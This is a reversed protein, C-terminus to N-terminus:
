LRKLHKNIFESISSFIIGQKNQFEEGSPMLIFNCSTGLDAISQYFGKSIQPSTSLKIEIAAVPTIGKVIVIDAEAGQHTRYFYMDLHTPKLQRIQEVAFGEWSAGASPHGYLEDISKTNILTHLLGSDRIYIKPAKVLRKRTNVFWSNLRSVLFAGELYELYKSVTPASVGLSRSYTEKNWITSNNYAIMSWFNRLINPSFDVGFLERMDREVYTKILQNSWDQATSNEKLTLATPFGGRFWLTDLSIKNDIAESLNIGNLEMYAIRGALSESVGKVLHPSSSGLLLFRGPKRDIDILARLLAFLRPIRQIEDIIVLKDKHKLLYGEADNQLRNWHSDLELDLYLTGKKATSAYLKALTTKGIQRAGMIAVAPNNRLLRGLIAIEKREIM